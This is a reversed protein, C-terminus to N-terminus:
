MRRCAGRDGGRGRGGILTIKVPEKLSDWRDALGTRWVTLDLREAHPLGLKKLILHQASQEQMLLPVRWINSVDHMTLVSEMPVQCFLAQLSMSCSPPAASPIPSPPRPRAPLHNDHLQSPCAVPSHPRGQAAPPITSSARSARARALPM